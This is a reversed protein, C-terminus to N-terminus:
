KFPALLKELSRKTIQELEEDTLDDPISSEFYPSKESAKASASASASSFNLPRSPYLPNERLAYPNNEARPTRLYDDYKGSLIRAMHEPNVIWGFTAKWEYGKKGTLFRSNNAKTFATKVQECGFTAISASLNSLEYDNLSQVKEFTTTSNFFEILENIEKEQTQNNM